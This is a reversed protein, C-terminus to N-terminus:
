RLLSQLPHELSPPGKTSRTPQTHPSVLCQLPCTPCLTAQVNDAHNFKLPVEGARRQVSPTIAGLFAQRITCPSLGQRTLALWGGTDLRADMASGHNFVAFVIPSADVSFGAPRLPSRAGGSRTRPLSQLAPVAELSAHQPRRPNYREGFAVCSCGIHRPHSPGGSDVSRPMCSSLRRLVQSAGFAGARPFRQELDGRRGINSRLLYSEHLRKTREALRQSTAWV